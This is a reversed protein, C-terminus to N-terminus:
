SKLGGRLERGHKRARFMRNNLRNGCSSMDCWTGGQNRSQDYFARRCDENACAKLRSWTGNRQAEAVVLLLTVLRGPLWDGVAALGVEGNDDIYAYATAIDAISRMPALQQETFAPGGSKQILLARLAERYGRITFLEEYTPLQGPLLLEQVELVPQATVPEALADIGSTLDMTNILAQIRDLPKPAPKLGAARAPPVDSAGDGRDQDAAIGHEEDPTPSM